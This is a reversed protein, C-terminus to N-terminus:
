GRPVAQRTWGYAGQGAKAVKGGKQVDAAVANVATEQVFVLLERMGGPGTREETRVGNAPGYNNITVAAYGGGAGGGGGSAALPQAPSVWGAGGPILYRKGDQEFVEPQGREVVEYLSGGSVSGGSARGGGFIGAVFTGIAALWGGGSGSASGGAAQKQGFLQGVLNEALAQLARRKLTDFFHELADSANDVDMGIDVFLDQLDGKFADEARARQLDDVLASVAARQLDTASAGARRLAIEREREDSSMRTLRLEFEMEGILQRTPDLRDRIAEAEERYRATEQEKAAALQQSTAGTQKGLTDIQRLNQQHEYEASALPGALTAALRNWEDDLRAAAAIEQQIDAVISAYFDPPQRAAAPAKAGGAKGGTTGPPMRGRAAMDAGFNFEASAPLVPGRPAGPLGLDFQAGFQQTYQERTMGQNRLVMDDLARQYQARGQAANALDGKITGDAFGFSGVQKLIDATIGAQNRIEALTIGIFQGMLAFGAPVKAVVGLLSFIAAALTDVGDKTGPDSLADNLDNLADTADNLSGGSGETLDGLTNKLAQLAGGFTDRAAGAAGGFETELERLILRQAEAQQGTEVLSEIVAKQDASFTVGVRQLATIGQIPDNLAKGLQITASELDTGMATAMDTIADIARPFVDAHIKTFTLLMAEASKVAEDDYTTKRATATALEDLAQKTMGAAGATSKLRAELQADVREAEATNKIVLGMVAVFGTGLVAGATKAANIMRAQSAAAKDLGAAADGGAKGVDHLSAKLKGDGGVEFIVQVRDTRTAM